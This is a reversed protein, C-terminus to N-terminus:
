VGLLRGQTDRDAALVAPEGELVVPGKRQLGRL